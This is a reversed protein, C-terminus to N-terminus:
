VAAAPRPRRVGSKVHENYLRRVEKFRLGGYVVAGLLVLGVLGTPGVVGLWQRAGAIALVMVATAGGAQALLTGSERASVGIQRQVMLLGLADGIVQPLAVAMAAGELGYRLTLPYILVMIVVLKAASLYFSINPKGIANFMSGGVVGIARAAGLMSLIQLAGIMPLWKQGYAVRVIEPALLALGAAAPLALGAVVRLVALYAVRIKVPDGQLSSYAPFVVTSAVKSIHTAPINALTFAMAYYGLMEFGLLKGIVMNDIETTFFLVITLGTIYRGYRLLERAIKPDYRLTMRGPVVIYSFVSRTLSSLIGSLVLAWVSGMVFALGIVIVTNSVAVIIELVTLARFDLRKQLLVTDVNTFGGIAFALSLAFLIDRLRPEDYYSAAFPAIACTLIMLLFGRALRLTFATHKAEEVNEQRQILAPGIGTETFLNLARMVVSSIGMLGFMEPTLLWALVITRVTQLVNLGANSVGVWMGSRVVRTVLSGEAGGMFRVVRKASQLPKL